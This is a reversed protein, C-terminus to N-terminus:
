RENRRIIGCRIIGRKEEKNYVALEALGNIGIYRLQSM